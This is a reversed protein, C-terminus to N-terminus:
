HARAKKLAKRLAADDLELCGGKTLRHLVV